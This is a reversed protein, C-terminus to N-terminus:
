SDRGSDLTGDPGMEVRWLADPDGTLELTLTISRQALQWAAGSWIATPSFEYPGKALDQPALDKLLFTRAEALVNDFRSLADSVLAIALPEPGSQNGAISLELDYGGRRTRGEWFGERFRLEGLVEDHVAAPATQQKTSWPWM